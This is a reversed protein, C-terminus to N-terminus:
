AVLASASGRAAAPSRLADSCLRAKRDGRSGYDKPYALGFEAEVLERLRRMDVHSAQGPELELLATQLHATRLQDIDQCVLRHGPLVMLATNRTSQSHVAMLTRKFTNVELVADYEAKPTMPVLDDGRHYERAGFTYGKAAKATQFRVLKPELELAHFGENTLRRGKRRSPSAGGHISFRSRNPSQWFARTIAAERM